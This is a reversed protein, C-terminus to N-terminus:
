ANIQFTPIEKMFSATDKNYMQMQSPYFKYASPGQPHNIHLPLRNHSKITRRLLHHGKRLIGIAPSHAPHECVGIRRLWMEQEPDIEKDICSIKFDEDPCPSIARSTLLVLEEELPGSNLAWCGCPSDFGDMQLIQHRRRTYLCVTYM